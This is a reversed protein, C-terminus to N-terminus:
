PQTPLGQLWNIVLAELAIRHDSWSHDTAVHVSQPKGGAARIEALLKVSDATVFDDGYLVLLRRGVLKPAAAAFTWEPGHAALEDTMTEGTVGALAERNSDMFAVIQPRAFKAGIGANGMDGASIIVTGLLDRDHVTTEVAVWGGMSHGGLAIRHPDVNLAKANAPDRLYALVADADQLNQAFSYSGPSGWSGRYNFTVVNWGARRVAQALDLNKEIGPLGHMLVFTPHPGPGAAIYGVGNIKVGGTPIHLTELRAPFKADPAPDAGIAIPIPTASQAAALGPLALAFATAISLVIRRM